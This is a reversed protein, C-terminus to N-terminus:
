ALGDIRQKVQWEWNSRVCVLICDPCLLALMQSDASFEMHIVKTGKELSFEGHRLGNKEWLIIQPTEGDLFGATLSGNPMFAIPRQLGVVPKESVSFVFNNDARAPGKVVALGSTLDRTLCKFDDGSQFCVQLVQSDGKWTICAASTLGPESM